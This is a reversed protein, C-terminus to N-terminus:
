WGLRKVEKLKGLHKDREETLVTIKSLKEELVELRRWM